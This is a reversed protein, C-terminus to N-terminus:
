IESSQIDVLPKAGAAILMNTGRSLPSTIPGPVAWVDRNYELALQATIATGSVEEAEIVILQQSLGAIIRNRAPFHFKLPPSGPPYESLLLGGAEVIRNALGVHVAPYISANDLGSGLVAITKGGSSLTEQHALADIGYALGSVVVQTASLKGVVIKTVEIGYDTPKRSGVVATTPMGLLELNGRFYLAKPADPIERLLAPYRPDDFSILGVEIAAEMVKESYM